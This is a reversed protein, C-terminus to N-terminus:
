SAVSRKQSRKRSLRLRVCPCITCAAREPFLVDDFPALGAARGLFGLDLEGAHGATAQLFQEFIVTVENAVAAEPEPVFVTTLGQIHSPEAGPWIRRILRILGIDFRTRGFDHRVDDDAQDVLGVIQEVLLQPAEFLVKESFAAQALARGPGPKGSTGSFSRRM